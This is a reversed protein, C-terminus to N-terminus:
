CSKNIELFRARLLRWSILQSQLQQKNRDWNQEEEKCQAAGREGGIIFGDPPHDKHEALCVSLILGHKTISSHKYSM